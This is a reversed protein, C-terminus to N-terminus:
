HDGLDFGSGRSRNRLEGPDRGYALPDDQSAEQRQWNWPMWGSSTRRGLAPPTIPYPPRDSGSSLEDREIRDFEAESRNRSLSGSSRSSEYHTSGGKQQTRINEQERDFAQLLSELRQRQSAVYNLRDENNRISDPVLKAAGRSLDSAQADRTEATGATYLASAGSLAQNVLGYLDNSGRAAPMQFRSMLSQAYTQGAPPPAEPKRPAFGLLNVRVWEIGMEIYAMGASKARDHSQTIFDDIEKEHHYLFPELHEQYIYSAGQAGPLILYLHAFFRIWSYFPVWSLIFDFTNEVATCASLVVFYILWPALLAPDSTHLAKYSAFIPFFVTTVVTLGDAIFGFM